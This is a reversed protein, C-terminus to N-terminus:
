VLIDSPDDWSGYLHGDPQIIGHRFIGEKPPTMHDTIVVSIGELDFRLAWPWSSLESARERLINIIFDPSVYHKRIWKAVKLSGHLALNRPEGMKRLTVQKAGIEGAWKIFALFSDPSDIGSKTLVPTLRVLFGTDSAERAIKGLNWTFVGRAMIKANIDDLHSVCSLAITHLGKDKWYLLNENNLFTGNTQLEPVYGKQSLISVLDGIEEMSTLTPEGKDTIIGSIRDAPEKKLVDLFKEALFSIKEPSLKEGAKPKLRYSMRSICFYCSLNCRNSGAMVSLSGVLM